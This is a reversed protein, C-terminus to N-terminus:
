KQWGTWYDPKDPIKGFFSQPCALLLGALTPAKLM